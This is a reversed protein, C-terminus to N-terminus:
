YFKYLLTHIRAYRAHSSANQTEGASGKEKKKRKPVQL